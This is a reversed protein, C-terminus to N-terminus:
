IGVKREGWPLAPPRGPHSPSGGQPACSSSLFEGGGERQGTGKVVRPRARGVGTRRLSANGTEGELHDALSVVTWPGPEGPLCVPEERTSGSLM